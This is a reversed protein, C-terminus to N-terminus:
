EAAEVTTLPEVLSFQLAVHHNTNEARWQVAGGSGTRGNARDEIARAGWSFMPRFSRDAVIAKCVDRMVSAQQGADPGRVIVFEDPTTYRIMRHPPAGGSAKRFTVKGHDAAYDGYVLRGRASPELQLTRQFADWETRKVREPKDPEPNKKPFNSAQLAVFRWRLISEVTEWAGALIDATVEPVSVDDKAFDILVICDPSTAGINAMGDKIRGGTEPADLETPTVLLAVTGNQLSSAFGQAVAGELDCLRVVPVVVSRYHRAAKYFRPIWEAPDREKLEKFLHSIEVLVPLDAPWAEVLARGIRPVGDPEMEFLTPEPKREALPPVIWRPWTHEKVSRPLHKTGLQEGRKFRLAVVYFPDAASM